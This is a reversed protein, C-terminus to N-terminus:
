VREQLLKNALVVGEFQQIREIDAVFLGESYQRREDAWPSSMMKSLIHDQQGFKSICQSVLEMWETQSNPSLDRFIRFLAERGEKSLKSGPYNLIGAFEYPKPHGTILEVLGTWLVPLDDTDFVVIKAEPWASRLRQIFSTWAINLSNPDQYLAYQIDPTGSLEQQIFDAVPQIPVILVVDGRSTLARLPQVKMEMNAYPVLGKIANRRSGWFADYSYVVRRTEDHELVLETYMHQTDENSLKELPQKLLKQLVERHMRPAPFEAKAEKLRRTNQSLLKSLPVSLPGHPGLHFFYQYKM